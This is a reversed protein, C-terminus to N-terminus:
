WELSEPLESPRRFVQWRTGSLGRFVKDCRKESMQREPIDRIFIGRIQDHFRRALSGYIEPDREGSDGVLVFRRQPFTRLLSMLVSAKARKRLM